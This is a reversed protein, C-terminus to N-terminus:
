VEFIKVEYRAATSKLTCVDGSVTIEETLDKEAVGYESAKFTLEFDAADESLNVAFIVTKTGDFTRWSGTVIQDSLIEGEFWLGAATKLKPLDCKVTAPRLMKGGNFLETYKVRATVCNKLFEMHRDSYVIDAKSWGLQQGYTLCSATCYKFFEFDEKKVGHTCRGITQIYGAYVAPFAPVQGADVWMWTLFGDFSKMFAEANCESFYFNDKPKNQNIKAMMKNYGEVRMNGGGPLHRHNKNFCPVGPNASVEDYYVGDIPLTAEMERTLREFHNHWLESSGCVPVLQSGKGSKTYQPYKAVFFSGDENVIGHKHGENEFNMEHGADGDNMEWSVANIYPLVYVGNQRLENAHDLFEQKAPLFHPYEINFPIEHWNYVHYAIDVGLEKRLEIPASYWYDKGYRDNGASINKPANDGQAESNPMYDCVWFPVKKFREPTDPRGNETIEPLWEAHRKVFDAYILSADYWDGELYQWRCKGWLSFSNAGLSAGIGFFEAKLSCKGNGSKYTFRKSAAKSDETAIYIGNKKGYVAFFQMCYGWHPYIREFESVKNTADSIVVGSKLPVFYDLYEGTMEPTPYDAEMVSYNINHNKVDVSWSIGEDDQEATVSVTIGSISEPNTFTFIYSSDSKEASVNEWNSLSDLIVSEDNLLHKVRMRFVSKELMKVEGFFGSKIAASNKSVEINLLFNKGSLTIM